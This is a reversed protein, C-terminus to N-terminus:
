SLSCVLSCSATSTHSTCTLSSPYPRHPVVWISKVTPPCSGAACLCQVLFHRPASELDEFACALEDVPSEGSYNLVLAFTQLKQSLGQHELNAEWPFYGGWPCILQSDQRSEVPILVLAATGQQHAIGIRGFPTFVYNRM